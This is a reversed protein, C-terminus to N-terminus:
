SHHRAIALLLCISELRAVPVFMEEFNVGQKKVYGKEVLHAKHKVIEGEENRKLKFM